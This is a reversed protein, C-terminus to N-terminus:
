FGAQLGVRFQLSIDSFTNLVPQFGAVYESLLIETFINFSSKNGFKIMAGAGEVASINFQMSKDGTQLITQDYMGVRAGFIGYAVVSTTPLIQFKYGFRTTLDAALALNSSYTASAAASGTMDLENKWASTYVDLALGMMWKDKVYTSGMIGVGANAGGFFARADLNLFIDNKKEWADFDKFTQGILPANCLMCNGINLVGDNEDYGSEPVASSKDDILYNSSKNTTKYGNGLAFSDPTFPNAAFLAAFSLVFVFLINLM